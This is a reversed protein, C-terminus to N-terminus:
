KSLYISCHCLCFMFIVYVLFFLKFNWLFLSLPWVVCTFIYIICCCGHKVYRSGPKMRKLQVAYFSCFFIFGNLVIFRGCPCLVLILLITILSFSIYCCYKGQILNCAYLGHKECAKFFDFCLQFSSFQIVHLFCFFAAFSIDSTRM